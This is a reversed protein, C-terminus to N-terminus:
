NVKECGLNVEERGFAIQQQKTEVKRNGTTGRHFVACTKPRLMRYKRM